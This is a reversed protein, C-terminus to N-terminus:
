VLRKLVAFGIAIPVGGFSLVTVSDLLKSWLPPEFAYIFMIVIGVLFLLGVVSAAFAIWKIQEREEGRSRRYRLVLSSASALICLPLLPLVVYFAEAVWPHEELGFPNRM